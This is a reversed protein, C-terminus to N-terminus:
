TRRTHPGAPAPSPLGCHHVALLSRPPSRRYASLRLGALPVSPATAGHGRTIPGSAVPSPTPAARLPSSPHVAPPARNLVLERNGGIGFRAGADNTRKNTMCLSILSLSLYVLTLPPPGPYLLSLTTPWSFSCTPTPSRPSSRATWPNAARAIQHHWTM